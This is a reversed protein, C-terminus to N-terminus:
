PPPTGKRPQQCFGPGVPSSDARRGRARAIEAAAAATALPDRAPAEATPAAAEGADGEAEGADAEAPPERRAADGSADRDAAPEVADPAEASDNAPADAPAADEEAQFQARYTEYVAAYDVDDDDSSAFLGNCGDATAM